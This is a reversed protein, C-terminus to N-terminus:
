CCHMGSPSYNYIDALYDYRGMDPIRFQFGVRVNLSLNATAVGTALAAEITADVRSDLKAVPGTKITKKIVTPGTFSGTVRPISNSDGAVHCSAGITTADVTVTTSDDGLKTYIAKSLAVKAYNLDKEKGVIVLFETESGTAMNKDKCDGTEFTLM